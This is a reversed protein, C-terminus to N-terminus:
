LYYFYRWGLEIDSIVLQGVRAPSFGVNLDNPQIARLTYAAAAEPESVLNFNLRHKGFGANTAAKVMLDKASDTWIAPVTLVYEIEANRVWKVQYTREISEVTVKRVHSLFDTVVKVPEIGLQQLKKETTHAPTTIPQTFASAPESGPPFDLDGSVLSLSDTSSVSASRHASRHARAPPSSAPAPGVTSETIGRNQLLIKFWKLPEVSNRTDKPIEYGWINENGGTNTYHLETPVQDSETNSTGCNPWTQM